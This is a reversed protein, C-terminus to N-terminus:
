KTNQTAMVATFLAISAASSLNLSNVKGKQPISVLSCYPKIKDRIGSGESGIVLCFPATFPVDQIMTKGKADLGYISYKREKFAKMLPTPNSTVMVDLHEAAGASRKSVVPSIISDRVETFIVTKMGLVEATRLVAAANNLDQVNDIMVVSPLNEPKAAYIRDIFKESNLCTYTSVLALVSQHDERGSLRALEKKDVQEVPINRAEALQFLNRKRKYVM